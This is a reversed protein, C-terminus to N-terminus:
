YLDSIRTINNFSHSLAVIPIALSHQFIYTNDCCVIIVFVHVHYSWDCSQQTIRTYLRFHLVPTVCGRDAVLCGWQRVREVWATQVLALFVTSKFINLIKM